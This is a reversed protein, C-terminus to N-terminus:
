VQYPGFFGDWRNGPLALFCACPMGAPRSPSDCLPSDTGTENNSYFSPALQALRATMTAVVDPHAAAVDHQETPDAAVDFLCGDGCQRVQDYPNVAAPDASTANPYVPGTWGAGAQPGTLLKWDGSVLALSRGRVDVAVEARPSAAAAGSWWPWMDLSDVPPLGSAAAHADAACFDAAGGALGCYTAYFDAVHAIGGNASGRISPPLYGGSLFAASRIGGEFQTYKGGRLPWNSAGSEAVDIPGGNDSFLAVLTEDWWGRARIAATVNGIVEDLLAVMAAYQNRCRYDAHTSGPFISATQAACAAEDDPSTFRALWDPPVQLPCHAVHPDYQLYLPGQSMNHAAIISLVRDRFTYEVYEGRPV